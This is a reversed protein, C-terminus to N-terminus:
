ARARAPRRVRLLGPYATHVGKAIVAALVAKVIDGINALRGNYEESLDM